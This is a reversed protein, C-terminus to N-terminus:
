GAEITGARIAVAIAPVAEQRNWWRTGSIGAEAVAKHVRMRASFDVVGGAFLNQYIGDAQRYAADRPGESLDPAVIRDARRLSGFIGALEYAPRQNGEELKVLTQEVAEKGARQLAAQVTERANDM